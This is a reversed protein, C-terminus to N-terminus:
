KVFRGFSEHTEDNYIEDEVPVLKMNCVPCNDHKRGEIHEHMPCKYKEAHTNGQIYKSHQHVQEAKASIGIFSVFIASIILLKSM